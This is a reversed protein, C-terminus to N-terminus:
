THCSCACDARRCHTHGDALHPLAAARCHASHTDGRLEEAMSLLDDLRTEAAAAESLETDTIPDGHWLLTIGHEPCRATTATEVPFPHVGNRHHCNM